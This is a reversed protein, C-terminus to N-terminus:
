FKYNGGVYFARGIPDGYRPDYGIVNGGGENQLSLTPKKNTLNKIGATFTLAKNFEYKGQWDFTSISPVKLGAFDAAAGQSGDANRVFIVGDDASYSQDRYGSKYNMTLTNTFGGTQLGVSLHMQTKFVVQQDPGFQALSTEVDGGPSQTYNMRLMHTGTWTAYVKGIPTNTRYSFDWDIGRYNAVGGNIPLQLLAITPFGGTPDLYGNVFLSAYKTPNNFAVNEAIGSSLVQNKIKVNWLDAGLSLGAVPDFRLGLTWQKSKEPKLGADGSLGNAGALLDYQAAGPLCSSSGPIPCAYTGATSGGFAVPGALDTIAPAKFGTGYAGRVLLTDMPTWRFSLKYTAAGFTNGVDANPLQQQIGNADAVQSFVYRSHTKSYSDYRVAASGELGKAIPLLMEGFLGVNKRSADFPVAGSTGGIPPDSVAPQTSFGSDSQLNASPHVQYRQYSLDMGMSAISTGGAMEFLDHQAGLHLTHLESKNKTFLQGTVLAPTLTDFGTNLIPDLGGSAVLQNFKVTDTYGGAATDSGKSTSLTLNADYNWGGIAGDIGFALHTAKTRFDDARGGLPVTRFGLTARGNSSELNHATLYPVVYTNWITPLRTTANVGLPQASPAFQANVLADTYVLQGWINTDNNIKVIGKVMGSDRKTEPIAQVTAAYNFRCTTSTASSVLVGALPTGCNGNLTYYPNISINTATTGAPSGAPVASFTLNAPVTNGTRQNFWYDKGEASFPFYGGNKSVDRDSAMLKQQHDHSYSALVNFGDTDLNGFGKSVGFSVSKAGPKQPSQYNVFVNGDTKNKKTIFNVVGAIADSGYLASAGDTLIEIREIADLPISELNVAFGGGQVTGLTSPAMRHGDLLVLTYKSQLAHLAATTGGGGGGNVSSSAPVFGQMAPLSQILDTASTLGTRKIDDQTLVQVPVAGEQAIRKISSGTVEIRELKQTEQALASTAALALIASTIITTKFM